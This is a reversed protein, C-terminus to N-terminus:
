IYRNVTNIHNESIQGVQQRGASFKNSNFCFYTTKTLMKNKRLGTVFSSLTFVKINICEM